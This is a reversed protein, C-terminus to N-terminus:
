ISTGLALREGKTVRTILLELDQAAAQEAQTKPRRADGESRGYDLHGWAWAPTAWRPQKAPERATNTGMEVRTGSGQASRRPPEEPTQDAAGSAIAHGDDTAATNVTRAELAAYDRQLHAQRSVALPERLPGQAPETHDGLPEPRRRPATPAPDTKPASRCSAMFADFPDDDCTHRGPSPGQDTARKPMNPTIARADSEKHAQPPGQTPAERSTAAGSTGTDSRHAPATSPATGTHGATQAKHDPPPSPFTPPM